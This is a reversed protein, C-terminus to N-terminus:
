EFSSTRVKILRSAMASNCGRNEDFRARLKTAEDLFVERDITWSVLAKLSKRYLRAAQKM